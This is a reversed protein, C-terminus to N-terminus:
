LLIIVAAVVMIALLLTLRMQSASKRSSEAYARTWAQWRQEAAEDIPTLVPM